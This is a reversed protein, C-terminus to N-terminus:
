SCDILVTEAAQIFSLTSSAIPHEQALNSRLKNTWSLLGGVDSAMMAIRRWFGDQWTACGGVANAREAALWRVCQTSQMGDVHLRANSGPGLAAGRSGIQCTSLWKAFAAHVPCDVM